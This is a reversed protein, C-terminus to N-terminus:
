TLAKIEQFEIDPNKDRTYSLNFASQALFVNAGDLDTAISSRYKEIFRSLAVPDASSIWRVSDCPATDFDTKLGYEHELRDALVDLQLAGIVGV